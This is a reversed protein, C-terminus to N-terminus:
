DEHCTPLSASGDSRPSRKCAASALESGETAPGDLQVNPTKPGGHAPCALGPVYGNYRGDLRQEENAAYNWFTAGKPREGYAKCDCTGAPCGDAWMPVSCLGLVGSFADDYEQKCEQSHSRGDTCGCNTGKCGPYAGLGASLASAASDPKTTRENEVDPGM